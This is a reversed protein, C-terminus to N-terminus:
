EPEPPPAAKTSSLGELAEAAVVGTSSAVVTGVASAMGMAGPGPNPDPNPNPNPNPNPHPTVRVRVRVRVGGVASPAGM